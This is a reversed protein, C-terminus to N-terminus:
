TQGNYCESKFQKMHKPFRLIHAVLGRPFQPAQSKSRSHIKINRRTANTEMIKLKQQEIQHAMSDATSPPLPMITLIFSPERGRAVQTPLTSADM